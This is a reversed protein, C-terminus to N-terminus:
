HPIIMAQVQRAGANTNNVEIRLTRGNMVMESQTFAQGATELVSQYTDRDAFFAYLNRNGAGRIIFNCGPTRLSSYYGELQVPGFWPATGRGALMATTGPAVALVGNTTYVVGDTITQQLAVANRYSAILQFQLTIPNIFPADCRTVFYVYKGQIPMQATYSGDYYYDIFWDYQGLRRFDYRTTPTNFPDLTPYFMATLSRPTTGLGTGVSLSLILSSYRSVDFPGYVVPIGGTNNDSTASIIIAPNDIVLVGSNLIATAIAIPNPQWDSVDYSLIVEASGENVSATDEGLIIWLDGTTSWMTSTGPNVPTGRGTAVSPNDAIWITAGLSSNIIRYPPKYSGARVAARGSVTINVSQQVNSM